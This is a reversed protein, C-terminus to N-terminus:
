RNIPQYNIRTQHTFSPIQPHFHRFIHSFAAPTQLRAIPPYSPLFPPPQLGTPPAQLGWAVPSQGSANGHCRWFPRMRVHAHAGGGREVRGRGGSSSSKQFTWFHVHVRVKWYNRLLVVHRRNIVNHNHILNISNIPPSKSATASTDSTPENAYGPTVSVAGPPGSSICILHGTSPHLGVTTMAVHCRSRM